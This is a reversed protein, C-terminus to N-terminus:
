CQISSVGLIGNKTKNDSPCNAEGPIEWGQGKEFNTKIATYHIPSTSSSEHNLTPIRPMNHCAIDLEHIGKHGLYLQPSGLLTDSICPHNKLCISENHLSSGRHNHGPHLSMRTTTNGNMGQHVVDPAEKRPTDQRIDPMDVVLRVEHILNSRKNNVVKTFTKPIIKRKQHNKKSM